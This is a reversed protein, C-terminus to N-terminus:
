HCKLVVQVMRQLGDEQMKPGILPGGFPRHQGALAQDNSWTKTLEKELNENCSNGYNQSLM